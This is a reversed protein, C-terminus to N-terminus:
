QNFDGTLILELDADANKETAYAQKILSLRTKLRQLDKEQQNRICPIYVSVLM